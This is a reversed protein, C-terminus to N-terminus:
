VGETGNETDEETNGTDEGGDEGDEVPPTEPKPLTGVAMIQSLYYAKGKIYIVQQGDYTGAAEVEGVIEELKGTDENYVGVTVTKGVLSSSYSLINATTLDKMQSVMDNMAQMSTMQVLQNMMDSTDAQNDITQNQFQAIMLGLMDTFDLTTKDKYKKDYEKQAETRNITPDFETGTKGAAAQQYRNMIDMGTSIASDAM